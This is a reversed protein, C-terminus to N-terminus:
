PRSSSTGGSVSRGGMRAKLEGAGGIEAGVVVGCLGFVGVNPPGGGADGASVVAWCVERLGDSGGVIGFRVPEIRGLDGWTPSGAFGRV